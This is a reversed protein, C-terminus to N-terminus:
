SVEHFDKTKTKKRFSLPLNQVGPDRLGFRCYVAVYTGTGFTVLDDQGSPGSIENTAVGVGM